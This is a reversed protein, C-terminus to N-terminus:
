KGNSFPPAMNYNSTRSVQNRQATESAAISACDASLNVPRDGNTALQREFALSRWPTFNAVHSVNGARCRWPAIALSAACASLRNAVATQTM